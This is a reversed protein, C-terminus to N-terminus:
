KKTGVFTVEPVGDGEISGTMENNEVKAEMTLIMPQGQIEINISAAVKDGDVKGNVFTGDGFPTSVSGEFNKETQKLDFTLDVQQGDADADVNWVGTVDLDDALGSNASVTGQQGFVVVSFSIATLLLASFFLRNRMM